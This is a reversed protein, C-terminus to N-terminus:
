GHVLPPRRPRGQLRGPPRRQPARPHEDGPRGPPRHARRLLLLPSPEVQSRPMRRLPGGQSCARRESPAGASAAVDAAGPASGPIFRVRDGVGLVIKGPVPPLPGVADVVPSEAQKRHRLKLGRQKLELATGEEVCAKKDAQQEHCGSANPPESCAARRQQLASARVSGQVALAPAPPLRAECVIAEKEFVATVVLSRRKGRADLPVVVSDGVRATKAIAGTSLPVVAAGPGAKALAGKGECGPAVFVVRAAEEEEGKPGKLPAWM